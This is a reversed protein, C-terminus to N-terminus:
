AGARTFVPFSIVGAAETARKDPRRKGADSGALTILQVRVAVRGVALSSISGFAAASMDVTVGHEHAAPGLRDTVQVIVQRGLPGTIRAFTGLKVHDMAVTLLDPDFPNGNAMRKGRYDEGYWTAVVPPSQEGIVYDATRGFGDGPENLYPSLSQAKAERIMECVFLFACAALLAGTKLHYGAWSFFRNM